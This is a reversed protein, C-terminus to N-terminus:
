EEEQSHHMKRKRDLRHADSKESSGAALPDELTELKQQRKRASKSLPAADAASAATATTAADADAAATPPTAVVDPLTSSEM